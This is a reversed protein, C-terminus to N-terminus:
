QIKQFEVSSHLTPVHTSDKILIDQSSSDNSGFPSDAAGETDSEETCISAKRETTMVPIDAQTASIIQALDPQEITNVSSNDSTLLTPVAASGSGAQQRSPAQSRGTGRPFQGKLPQVAPDVGLGTWPRFRM